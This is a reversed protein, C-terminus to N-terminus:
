RYMVGTAEEEVEDDWDDTDFQNRIDEIREIIENLKFYVGDIDDVSAEEEAQLVEMADHYAEALKLSVERIMDRFDHELSM